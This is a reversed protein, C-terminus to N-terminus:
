TVKHYILKASTDTRATYIAEGRRTVEGVTITSLVTFSNSNVSILPFIEPYINLFGSLEKLEVVTAFAEKKRAHIIAEAMSASMDDSLSLLVNKSATNINIKGSNVVTVFPRIANFVEPTIFRVLKLEEVSDLKGNKASYPFQLSQYYSSEYFGDSDNDIWDVVAGAIEGDLGLNHLLRKFIALLKEDVGANNVLRNLNIKSGEDVVNVFAYNDGFPIPISTFLNEDLSDVFRNSARDNKFDQTILLRGAELGSRVASSAIRDDRFSAVMSYDIWSAYLFETVTITLITVVLLTVLLAAGSENKLSNM